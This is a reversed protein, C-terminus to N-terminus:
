PCTGVHEIFTWGHVKEATVGVTIGYRSYELFTLDVQRGTELWTNIVCCTPYGPFYIPTPDITCRKPFKLVAYPIFGRFKGEIETVYDYVTSGSAGPYVWTGAPVLLSEGTPTNILLVDETVEEIRGIYPKEFQPNLEELYGIWQRQASAIQSAALLALVLGALLGTLRRMTQEKATTKETM